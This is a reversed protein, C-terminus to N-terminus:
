KKCGCATKGGSKAAASPNAVIKNPNFKVKSGKSTKKTSM